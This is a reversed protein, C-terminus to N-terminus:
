KIRSFNNISYNYMVFYMGERNICILYKVMWNM